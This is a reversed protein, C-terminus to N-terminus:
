HNFTFEASTLISWAVDQLATRRDDGYELVIAKLSELESSSPERSLAALFLQTIIEEDTSAKELMKAILNTESALKPNLTDGNSLHLVQVMSPDDSRECECTIERPNRGFTKLFYSKVAADYLQIARTGETYFETKQTDAGPFAIEDFKTTTGLTQDISDLLVEAMMRRPYYRSHYKNENANEPAAVSSRQYTESQLILKMLQPLDFEASTIFRATADLLPENTAPNSLRLDDVQEVLGRGFYNAWIRNTIARAFYPNEPATMWDALVERRDSTNSFAIPEADLPAPPQPKGRNPQILEGTTSVFLTRIGDGNRGDGGWGKARVRSFLNAMAYYQDNTWKELPHNHCKACGISLGLFAQSANETMEEPSQHLAYFNTAGNQDSGGTATLIKRVFQDWPTRNAVADRVWQYYTKVAVPRLKTGNILLLDCWKYTWYDVYDDSALLHDILWDRRDQEPKDFYTQREETTPLRGITDITARRLFTADDCRPSPPLNLKALQKLNEDDILNRQPANTFVEPSLQNPYPVTIRALNVKSSFWVLIAGQGSDVVTVNGAEDVSAISDDTSTFKAWRTVDRTQGNDYHATVLLKSLDQPRLTSDSPEVTIGTLTSDDSSPPPGGSTIWTSLTQYDPSETELRLGGKHPLAGTPKTLLLSKAPDAYEVRRGLSERTITRHDFEPDYGRLSLRFGGKGALAGHCAGSNCNLKTLLPEVDHRFSIAKATEMNSVSVTAAVRAGDKAAVELSTEGNKLPYVINDRISVLSHDQLSVSFESSNLVRGIEGSESTEYVSFTQAARDDALEIKGPLIVIQREAQLRLQPHILLALLLLLLRTPM